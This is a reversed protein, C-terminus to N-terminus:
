ITTDLSIIGFNVTVSTNNSSSEASIRVDTKAELLFPINVSRIVPGGDSRLASLALVRTGKGFPTITANLNAERVSASGGLQGTLQVNLDFIFYQENNPVSFFGNLTIGKGIDIQSVLNGTNEITITGLNSGAVIGVDDIAVSNVRFFSGVTNVITTGDLPVREILKDRNIDQGNIIVARAGTGLATDNVDTSVIDLIADTTPFQYVTSGNWVTEEVGADLDSNNGEVIVASFGPVLGRHVQIGFLADQIVSISIKKPDGGLSRFVAKALSNIQHNGGFDDFLDLLGM